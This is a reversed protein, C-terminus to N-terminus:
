DLTNFPVYEQLPLMCGISVISQLVFVAPDCNPGFGPGRGEFMQLFYDLLVGPELIVKDEDVPIGHAERTLLHHTAESISVASVLHAVM